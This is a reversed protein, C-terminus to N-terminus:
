LEAAIRFPRLASLLPEFFVPLCEFRRVPPHLLVAKREGFITQESPRFSIQRLIVHVTEVASQDDIALRVQELMQIGAEDNRQDRALHGRLWGAPEIRDELDAADLMDHVRLKGASDLAAPSPPM